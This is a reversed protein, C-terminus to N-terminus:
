LRKAPKKTKRARRTRPARPLVQDEPVTGSLAYTGRAVRVFSKDNVIHALINFPTGVGPIPYGNNLFQRHIESIHLPRGSQTLIRRAMERVSAPTPRGESVAAIRTTTGNEAPSEELSKMQRLLELKRSVQQLQADLQGRRRALEERESELASEWEAIKALDISKMDDIYGIYSINDLWICNEM